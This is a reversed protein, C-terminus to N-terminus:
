VSSLREGVTKSHSFSPPPSFDWKEKVRSRSSASVPFVFLLASGFGAGTVLVPAFAFLFLLHLPFHCSPPFHLHGCPSSELPSFLLETEEGGGWAEM